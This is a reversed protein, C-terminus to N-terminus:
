KTLLEYFIENCNKCRYERCVEDTKHLRAVGYCFKCEKSGPEALRNPPVIRPLAEKPDKGEAVARQRAAIVQPRLLSALGSHRCAEMFDRRMFNLKNADECSDNFRDNGGIQKWLAKEADSCFDLTYYVPQRPLRLYPGHAAEWCIHDFCLSWIMEESEYSPIRNQIDTITPMKKDNSVCLSFAFMLENPPQLKLAEWYTPLKLAQKEQSVDFYNFLATMAEVFEAKNIM